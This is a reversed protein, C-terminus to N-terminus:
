MGRRDPPAGPEADPRTPRPRNILTAVAHIAMAVLVAVGAGALMALWRGWSERLEATVDRGVAPAVGVMLAMPILWRWNIPPQNPHNVGAM